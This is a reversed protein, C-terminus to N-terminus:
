MHFRCGSHVFVAGAGCLRKVRAEAVATAAGLHRVLGFLRGACGLLAVRCGPQVPPLVTDMGMGM